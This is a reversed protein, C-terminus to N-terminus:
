GRLRRELNEITAAQDALLATLRDHEDLLFTVEAATSFWGGACRVRAERLREDRESDTAPTQDAATAAAPAVEPTTHARVHAAGDCEASGDRVGWASRFRGCSCTSVTGPYGRVTQDVSTIVHTPPTQDTM